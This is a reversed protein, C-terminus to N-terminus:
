FMSRAAAVAVVVVVAVVAVILVGVRRLVGAVGDHCIDVTLISMAHVPAIYMVAAHM